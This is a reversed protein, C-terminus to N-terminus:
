RMCCIAWRPQIAIAPARDPADARRAAEAQDGRGAGLPVDRRLGHVPWLLLLAHGRGSLPRGGRLQARGGRVRASAHGAVGGAGGAGAAGACLGRAASREAPRGPRASDGAVGAHAATAPRNFGTLSTLRQRAHQIFGQRMEQALMRWGAVFAPADQQYRAWLEDYVIGPLVDRLQAFRGTRALESIAECFERGPADEASMQLLQDELRGIDIGMELARMRNLTPGRRGIISCLRAELRNSPVSIPLMDVLNRQRSDVISAAWLCLFNPHGM